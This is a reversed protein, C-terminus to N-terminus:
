IVDRFRMCYLCCCISLRDRAKSEHGEASVARCSRMEIGSNDAPRGDRGGAYRRCFCDCLSSSLRASPRCVGSERSAPFPFCRLQGGRGCLVDSADSLAKACSKNVEPTKPTQFESVDVQTSSCSMGQDDKLPRRGGGIGGSFCFLRRGSPTSVRGGLFHALRCGRAGDRTAKAVGDVPLVM